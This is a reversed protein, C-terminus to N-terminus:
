GEKNVADVTGNIDYALLGDPDEDGEAEKANLNAAGKKTPLKKALARAANLTLADKDEEDLLKANVLKGVLEDLEAKEKAEADAKMNAFMETTSATAEAVADTVTKALDNKLTEFATGIGDVKAALEELRKDDAM